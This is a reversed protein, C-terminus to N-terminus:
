PQSTRDRKADGPPLHVRGHHRWIPLYFALLILDEVLRVGIQGGVNGTGFCGCSIDLNRALASLLAAVFLWLLASGLLVAGLRVRRVWLGIAAAIEVWPLACALWDSVEWSVLKYQYISTLTTSPDQLKFFAATLFVGSLLTQILYIWAPARGPKGSAGASKEDGPVSASQKGLEAAM